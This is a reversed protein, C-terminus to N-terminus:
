NVHSPQAQSTPKPAAQQQAPPTLLEEAPEEVLDEPAIEDAPQAGAASAMTMEALLGSTNPDAHSHPTLCLRQKLGRACAACVAALM